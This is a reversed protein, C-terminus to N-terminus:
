VGNLAKLIKLKQKWRTDTPSPDNAPLAGPQNQYYGLIKARIRWMTDHVNPTDDDSLIVPQAM